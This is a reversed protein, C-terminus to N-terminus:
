VGPWRHFVAWEAAAVLVAGCAALLALRDSAPEPPAPAGPSPEPLAAPAIRSEPSDGMEVVIGWRRNATQCEYLGPTPPPPASWTGDARPRVGALELPPDPPFLRHVAVEGPEVPGPASLPTGLALRPAADASPGSLWDIAHRLFVPFAVLLPFNSQEPAFGLAVFRGAPGAGALAIPGETTEILVSESAAPEFVTARKLRLDALDTGGWVPHTRDWQWVLPRDLVRRATVPVHEGESGFFLYRGRPLASSPATGDFIVIADPPLDRLASELREPPCVGSRAADIVPGLAAIGAQLFAGPTGERAVILIPVPPAPFAPGDFRDDLPFPDGTSLEVSLVAPSALPITLLLTAPARAPCELLGTAVVAGRVKVSVPVRRDTPGHNRSSVTVTAAPSGRLPEIAVGTLAINAAESGCRYWRIDPDNRVTEIGDLGVGDTAIALGIRGTSARLAPIMEALDAGFAGGPQIGDLARLVTERDFSPHLKWELGRGLAAVGVPVGPPVTAVFKRLTDRGAMWRARHDPADTATMSPSADLLCVWAPPGIVAPPSAKPGALATVIAALLILSLLLPIADRLFRWGARQRQTELVSRWLPLYVAIEPIPRKRRIHFLIIPLALLLGWAAEPHAFIM